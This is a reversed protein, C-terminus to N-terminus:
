PALRGSTTTTLSAASSSRRRLAYAASFASGTLNAASRKAAAPMGLTQRGRSPSPLTACCSLASRARAATVRALSARAWPWASCLDGSMPAWVHAHERERRRGGEEEEVRGAVGGAVAGQHRGGRGDVGVRGHEVELLHRQRGSGGLALRGHQADRHARD